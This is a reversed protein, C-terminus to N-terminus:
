GATDAANTLLRTGKEPHVRRALEMGSLKAIALEALYLVTCGPEMHGVYTKEEGYISFTMHLHPEYDAVIGHVGCIEIPGEFELFMNKSPFGTTTVVHMRAKSLTAIGSLVIGNRVENERLFTEIGECLDEGYDLRLAFVEDMRGGGIWEM